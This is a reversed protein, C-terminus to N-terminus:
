AVEVFDGKEILKALLKENELLAFLSGAMAKFDAEEDPSITDRQSKPFGFVFFASEGHRLLIITRYGKSRGRGKRAIRQKFVGGGLEADILGQEARQVAERLATDDIENKRAFREFWRNKFIRM